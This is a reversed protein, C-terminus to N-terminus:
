HRDRLVRKYSRWMRKAIKDRRKRSEKDQVESQTNESRIIGEQLEEEAILEAESFPDSGHTNM